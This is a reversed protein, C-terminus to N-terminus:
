VTVPDTFQIIPAFLPAGTANYTTHTHTHTSDARPKKTIYVTALCYPGALVLVVVIYLLGGDVTAIAPTLPM